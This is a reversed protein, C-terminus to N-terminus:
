SGDLVELTVGGLADATASAGPPVAISTFADEVFCPGAHREGNGGGLDNCSGAVHHDLVM